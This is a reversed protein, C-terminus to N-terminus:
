DRVFKIHEVREAESMFAFEGNSGQAVIGRFGVKCWKKLNSKLAKWNIDGNKKFPTPIPPYLGAISFAKGKSSKATKRSKSGSRSKSKSTTKRSRKEKSKAGPCKKAKSHSRSRSRSKGGKGKKSSGKSAKTRSM